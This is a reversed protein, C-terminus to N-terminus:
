QTKVSFQQNQSLHIAIEMPIHYFLEWNYVSYAGSSTFDLDKVPYPQQVIDSPNYNTQTFLEQYLTTRPKGDPLMIQSGDSNKSYDTDAAQLGAMEGEILRKVLEAVYPHFHPYFQYNLTWEETTIHRIFTRTWGLDPRYTQYPRIQADYYTHFPFVNTMMKM